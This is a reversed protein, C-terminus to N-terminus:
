CNGERIMPLLLQLYRVVTGIGHVGFFLPVLATGGSLNTQGNFPVMQLVIATNMFM